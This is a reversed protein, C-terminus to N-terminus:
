KVTVRIVSYIGNQAYIYIKAKGKSKGKVIGKKSVYVIDKNSSEYSLARHKRVKGGTQRAKIRSSKGKKVSIVKGKPRTVKVGSPNKVRNGKTAVHILKSTSLVRNDKDVAIMIFKYYKNKKLRDTIKKVTFSKKGSGLKKILKMKKGAGCENGYLVYKKAGKIKSWSLKISNKKQSASRLKLESFCSWSPDKEGSMKIIKRGVSEASAGATSSETKKGKNGGSGTGSTDSATGKKSADQKGGSQGQTKSNNGSGSSNEPTSGESGRLKPMSESKTTGCLACTYVKVGEKSVTPEVTIIGQDWIHNKAKKVQEKEKGCRSCKLITVGAHSCTPESVVRDVSWSHGLPAIEAEIKMTGEADSFCFGCRSCRYCSKEGATLCGAEKGESQVLEHTGERCDVHVKAAAPHNVISSQDSTTGYGGETWIWYDGPEDFTLECVAKEDKREAQLSGEEVYLEKGYFVETEYPVTVTDYASNPTGGESMVSGSKVVEVNITEGMRAEYEHTISGNDAFYQFGMNADFCFGFSIFHSVDIFDGDNLVIRDATAGWGPKELPYEGNVYYLLNEDWILDDEVNTWLGEPMYLSGPSGTQKWKKTRGKNYSDLVYAFLTLLTTDAKGDGDGDYSWGGLKYDALRVEDLVGLDVPVYTMYGSETKGRGNKVFRGEHSFSVYVKQGYRGEAYAPEAGFVRGSIYFCFLLSILLVSSMVAKSIRKKCIRMYM